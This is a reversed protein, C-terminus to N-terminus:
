PTDLGVAVVNGASDYTGVYVRGGAVTPSANVQEGIKSSFLKKGSGADFAVIPGNGSGVYVVGNAVTPSSFVVGGV